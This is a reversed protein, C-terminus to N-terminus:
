ISKPTRSGMEMSHGEQLTSTEAQVVKINTQTNQKIKSPPKIVKQVISMNYVATLKPCVKSM